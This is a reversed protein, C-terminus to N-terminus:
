RPIAITEQDGEYAQGELTWEAGCFCSHGKVFTFWIMGREEYFGVTSGMAILNFDTNSVMIQLSGVYDLGLWGNGDKRRVILTWSCNWIMRRESIKAHKMGETKSHKMKRRGRGEQDRLETRVEFTMESLYKRIRNDVATDLRMREWQWRRIWSQKRLEM